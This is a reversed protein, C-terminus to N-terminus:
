EAWRVCLVMEVFLLVVFWPSLGEGECPASESVGSNHQPSHDLETACPSSHPQLMGIYRADREAFIRCNSADHPKATCVQQLIRM